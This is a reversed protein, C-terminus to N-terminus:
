FRRPEEAIVRTVAIRARRGTTGGAGKGDPALAHIGGAM